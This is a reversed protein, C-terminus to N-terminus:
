PETTPSPQLIGAFGTARQLTEIGLYLRLAHYGTIIACQGNATRRNRPDTSRWLAMTRTIGTYFRRLDLRGDEGPANVPRVVRRFRDIKTAGPWVHPWAQQIGGPGNWPVGEIWVFIILPYEAGQVQHVNTAWGYTLYRPQCWRPPIAMQRGSESLFRYLVSNRGGTCGLLTVREGRFIGFPRFDNRRVQYPWGDVLQLQERADDPDDTEPEPDRTTPTQNISPRWYGAPRPLHGNLFDVFWRNIRTSSSIYATEGTMSRATRYLAVIKVAPERATVATRIRHFDLAAAQKIAADATIPIAPLIPATDTDDVKTLSLQVGRYRLITRFVANRVQDELTGLFLGYAERTEPQRTPLDEVVTARIASSGGAAPVPLNFPEFQRADIGAAENAERGETTTPAAGHVHALLYRVVTYRLEERDMSARVLGFFPELGTEDRASTGAIGAAMTRVPERLETAAVGRMIDLFFNGPEVSELQYPDGGLVIRLLRGNQTPSRQSAPPDIRSLVSVFRETTVMGCEDIVLIGDRSLISHAFLRAYQMRAVFADITGVAIGFHAKTKDQGKGGLVLPEGDRAIDTLRECVRAATRNTPTLVLLWGQDRTCERVVRWLERLLHTKGTGPNGTVATMYWHGIRRLAEGQSPTVAERGSPIDIGPRWVIPHSPLLMGPLTQTNRNPDFQTPQRSQDAQAIVRTAIAEDLRQRWTLQLFRYDMTADTPTEAQLPHLTPSAVAAIAAERGAPHQLRRLPQLRIGLFGAYATWPSPWRTDGFYVIANPHQVPRNLDQVRRTLGSAVVSEAFVTSGTPSLFPIGGQLWDFDFQSSGRSRGFEDYVLFARINRHELQRFTETAVAMSREVALPEDATAGRGQLAHAVLDMSWFPLLHSAGGGDRLMGSGPSGSIGVWRYPNAAVQALLMAGPSGYEEPNSLDTLIEILPQGRLEHPPPPPPPGFRPRPRVKPPPTARQWLAYLRTLGTALPVRAGSTHLQLGEQLIAPTIPLSLAAGVARVLWDANDDSVPLGDSALRSLPQPNAVGHQRARAAVVADYDEAPFWPYMGACYVRLLRAGRLDDMPLVVGDNAHRLWGFTGEVMLWHWSGPVLAAVQERETGPPVNADGIDPAFPLDAVFLRTMEELPLQEGGQAGVHGSQLVIGRAPLGPPWSTTVLPRDHPALLRADLASLLFLYRHDLEGEQPVKRLFRAKVLM